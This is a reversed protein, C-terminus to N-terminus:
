SSETSVSSLCEGTGRVPTLSFLRVTFPDGVTELVLSTGQARSYYVSSSWVENYRGGSEAGKVRSPTVIKKFGTRRSLRWDSGIRVFIIISRVFLIFPKSSFFM